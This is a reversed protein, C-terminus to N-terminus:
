RRRPPVRRWALLILGFVILYLLTFVWEPWDHYLIRELWHQVFGVEYGPQGARQRLASEWVTLPCVRGVVAGLAVFGMAALHLLRWRFGRVWGWSRFGGVGIVVLGGTIFLVVVVHALLLLDALLVASM